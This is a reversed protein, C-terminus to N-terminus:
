LDLDFSTSAEEEPTAFLPPSPRTPTLAEQLARQLRLVESDRKHLDTALELCKRRYFSLVHSPGQETMAAEEFRTGAQEVARHVPAGGTGSDVEPLSVRSPSVVLMTSEEPSSAGVQGTPGKLDEGGLVLPKRSQHSSVDELPVPLGVSLPTLAAGRCSSPSVQLSEPALSFSEALVPSPETGPSPGDGKSFCRERHTSTQPTSVIVASGQVLDRDYTWDWSVPRSSCDMSSCDARTRSEGEATAPGDEESPLLEGFPLEHTFHCLAKLQTWCGQSLRTFHDLLGDFCREGLMEGADLEHNFREEAWAQVADRPAQAFLATVKYGRRVATAIHPKLHQASTGSCEVVVSLGRRLAEPLASQDGKWLALDAVGNFCNGLHLAEALFAEKEVPNTRANQRARTLKRFLGRTCERLVEHHM